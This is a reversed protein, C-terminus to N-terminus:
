LYMPHVYKGTRRRDTSSPTQLIIIRELVLENITKSCEEGVLGYNYMYRSIVARNCGEKGKRKVLKEIKERYNMKEKVSQRIHLGRLVDGINKDVESLFPAVSKLDDLTITGPLGNTRNLMNLASLKAYYEWQTQMYITEDDTRDVVNDFAKREIGNIIDRCENTIEIPLLEHPTTKEKFDKILRMQKGIEVGFKKLESWIERSKEQMPPLHEIKAIDEPKEYLIKIRRLLGQRSMSKSLYQDPEQMSSFMNVYYDSKLFRSKKGERQSLSQSYSEGYYFKSFLIDVGGSSSCIKKLIGGFESSCLLFNDIDNEQGKIIADAIGEPTGDEIQLGILANRLKDKDNKYFEQMASRIVYNVYNIITSRHGIGPICSNIFWVNPRMGRADPFDYFQGYCVALISYGGAVRFTTPSDNYKALIGLWRDMVNIDEPM